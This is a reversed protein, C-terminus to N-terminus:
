ERAKSPVGAKRAQEQMDDLQQKAADLAKQKQAIQDKYQADQKDWTAQNRLRNGADAYFDAARIQYERQDVSLERSMLDIQDKQASIKKAWEEVMKQQDAASAAPKAETKEEPKSQDGDQAPAATKDAPEEPANGVISLADNKPLNDNDYKKAAPPQAQKDKRIARAYSGLSQDQALSPLALAAAVIMGALSIYAMRKM